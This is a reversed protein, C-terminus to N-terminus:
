TCNTKFSVRGGPNKFRFSAWKPPFGVHVVDNVQVASLNGLEPVYGLLEVNGTDIFEFLLFEHIRDEVLLGHVGGRRSTVGLSFAFGVVFRISWSFFVSVLLPASAPLPSGGFLVGTGFFITLWLGLLAVFTSAAFVSVLVVFVSVAPGFVVASVAVIFAVASVPFPIAIAASVAIVASVTPIAVLTAISIVPVVSVTSVSVPVAQSLWLFM